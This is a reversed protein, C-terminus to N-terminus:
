ANKALVKLMGAHLNKTAAAVFHPSWLNFEGGDRGTVIGGAERVLLVGAAVDWPHIHNAWFADLAGSAVYALNLAASGSRRVAQCVQVADVFDLLDPADRAVRAPLSVAVLANGVETVASANMRKGNCKAGRGATATFCMEAVPDFVVGALLERGRAIAISIAYHPYGHMYNTTGDLPDVLWNMQNSETPFKDPPQEEGIIEHNPFRSAIVRRIAAESALDADTVFDTIGKERAQFKGRWELLENGGARAAAECIELLENTFLQNSM